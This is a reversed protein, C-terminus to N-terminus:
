ILLPGRTVKWGETCMINICAWRGNNTEPVLVGGEGPIVGMERASSPFLRISWAGAAKEKIPLDGEAVTSCHLPEVHTTPPYPYMSAYPYIFIYIDTINDGKPSSVRTSHFGPLEWKVTELSLSPSM